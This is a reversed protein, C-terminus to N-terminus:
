QGKRNREVSGKQEAAGSRNENRAQPGQRNPEDTPVVVVSPAPESASTDLQYVQAQVQSRASVVVPLYVKNLETMSGTGSETRAHVVGCALCVEAAILAVRFLARM